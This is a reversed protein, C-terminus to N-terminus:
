HNIYSNEGFRLRSFPLDYILDSEFKYFITDTHNTPECGLAKDLSTSIAMDRISLDFHPAVVQGTQNHCSHAIGIKITIVIQLAAKVSYCM